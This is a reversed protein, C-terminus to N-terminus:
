PHHDAAVVSNYVCHQFILADTSGFPWHMQIATCAPRSCLLRVVLVPRDVGWFNSIEPFNVQKRLEEDQKIIADHLEAVEEDTM